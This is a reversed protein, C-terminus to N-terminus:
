GGSGVKAKKMYGGPIPEDLKWVISM